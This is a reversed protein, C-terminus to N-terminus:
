SGETASGVLTVTVTVEMVGDPTIEGRDVGSIFGTGTIEWDTTARPVVAMYDRTDGETFAQMIDVDTQSGPVYNLVVTLDGDDIMGSIFERRRNPSKLHTADIKETEGNPLTFSKVEVWETLVNSNNDFHFEGGWGTKAATM